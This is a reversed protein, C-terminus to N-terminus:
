ITIVKKIIKGDCDKGEYGFNYAYITREKTIMDYRMTRYYILKRDALNLLPQELHIITDQINFEGTKINVGYHATDSNLSFEIVPSKEQYDLIDRFSSPNHAQSPDHKSYHDDIPQDIRHGDEFIATWLYKLM